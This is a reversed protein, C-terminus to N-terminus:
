ILRNLSRRKVKKKEERWTKAKKEFLSLSSSTQHNINSENAHKKIIIIKKKQLFLFLSM